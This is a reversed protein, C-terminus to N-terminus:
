RGMAQVVMDGKSTQQGIESVTASQLSQNAQLTAELGEEMSRLVGLLIDANAVWKTVLARFMAGDTGKFNGELTRTSEEVDNRIRTIGDVAMGVANIGSRMGAATSQQGSGAEHQM